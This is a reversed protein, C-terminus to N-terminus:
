IVKEGKKKRGFRFAGILPFYLFGRSFCVPRELFAEFVGTSPSKWM